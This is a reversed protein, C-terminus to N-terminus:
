ETKSVDSGGGMAAIKEAISATEEDVADEPYNFFDSRKAQNNKLSNYISTLDVIEEATTIDIKHGIREEIMEASVGLEKFKTLMMALRKEIPEGGGKVLTQRCWAMADEVISMPVMALIAARKRRAGNNAVLEYIDRPDTLKKLRKAGKKGVEIHHPVEFDQESSVNTEMDWCFAQAISKGERRELERVGASMNGYCRMIVEAIRISPGKLMEGSRPFKWEAEEALTISRCEEMIRARVRVMDRPFRKASIVKAQIEQIAKTMEVQVMAGPDQPLAPLNPETPQNFDETM